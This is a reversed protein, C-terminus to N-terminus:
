VGEPSLPGDIYIFSSTHTHTQTDTQTDTPKRHVAVSSFRNEHFKAHTNGQVGPTDQAVDFEGGIGWGGLVLVGM